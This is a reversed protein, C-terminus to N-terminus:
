ILIQLLINLNYKYTEKKVTCVDILWLIGCLGGTLLKLVGRGIKGLMFSDIGLEGLLLSLILLTTPDKYDEAFLLTEKDDDAKLLKEKIMPISMRDFYKGNQALFLDVKEKTM